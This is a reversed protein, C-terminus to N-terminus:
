LPLQINTPINKLIHKVRKAHTYDRKIPDLHRIDVSEYSIEPEDQGAEYTAITTKLWHDDDREPFDPKYHAGRFEDRLYAGKAIALAIEMM